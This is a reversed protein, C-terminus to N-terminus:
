MNLTHALRPHSLETRVNLRACVADRKPFLPRSPRTPRQRTSRRVVPCHVHVWAPPPLSAATGSCTTPDNLDSARDSESDEMRSEHSRRYGNIRDDRAPIRNARRPCSHTTTVEGDTTDKSEAGSRNRLRDAVRHRHVDDSQPVVRRPGNCLLDPRATHVYRDGQELAVHWRCFRGRRRRSSRRRTAMAFSERCRRLVHCGADDRAGDPDHCCASTFTCTLQVFVRHVGHRIACRRDCLSPDEDRHHFRIATTLM